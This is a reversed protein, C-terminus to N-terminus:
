RVRPVHGGRAHAHLNRTATFATYQRATDAGVGTCACGALVPLGVVSPQVPEPGKVIETDQRHHLLGRAM